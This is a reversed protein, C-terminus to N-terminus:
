YSRRGNFKDGEVHSNVSNGYPHSLNLIVHRKGIDKPRTLLPSCHFQKHDIHNVPGLIAGLSIEKDIYEQVQRPYQCASFHNTINTNNLENPDVLSLPFGFRIYQLVRKDSYDKLYKEWAEVQLGSRIPIRACRYNPQGTHRIIDAINLLMDISDLEVPKRDPRIFSFDTQVQTLYGIKKDLYNFDKAGHKTIDVNKSETDPPEIFENLHITMDSHGKQQPTQEDSNDQHNNNCDTIEQDANGILDDIINTMYTIYDCIYYQWVQQDKCYNDYVLKPNHNIDSNLTIHNTVNMTELIVCNVVKLVELYGEPPHGCRKLSYGSDYKDTCLM